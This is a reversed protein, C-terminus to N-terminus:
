KLWDRIRQTISASDLQLNKLLISKAGHTVFEDGIGLNLVRCNALMGKKNLCELVASGVGGSLVGEELTVIHPYKQAHTLLLTEDLPKACRMNVVGVNMGEAQLEDAVQLATQVMSGIAWLCLKEGQRLEEAKGYLMLKPKDIPVGVGSGRPYRIAVPCKWVIASHLMSVLENEDKPALIKLNPINRLFSLDFVGHHTSGDDGVLGARDLCFIVPLNQLCVDHLVNDYARQLFSSYVAVVPRLGAAAMGAAMTVAHQEAIGVDFYRDPLAKAFYNLGTGEPMAATLAVIEPNAKGEAVLAKGFIETYSPVANEAVIKKGTAIEFPGTGHFSNPNEEAPGYGKGKKTLVHILVPGHLKKAGELVDTLANMDHGDVPGLYTYGLEEFLSNPVLLYKLSGKLRKVFHLLDEGVDMSKMLKALTDKVSNYVDGTRLASLYESMAGVNKEISMENDNLIVILNKNAIGADNLGEFALGGTMAGDGIVAVVHGDEKHLDRGVAMGLAASISTSSHGTGFADHESETRKPFGSLGGYQRLTKFADRRGTLIKHVYSQHGVDFIIKDKPTSFVKHLALTLEVVGLSPALHGGNKSVVEIIYQRLEQALQKLEKTNLKKLDEPSDIGALINESM